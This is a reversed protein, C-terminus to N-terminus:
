LQFDLFSNSLTFKQLSSRFVLSNRCKNEANIKSRRACTDLGISFSQGGSISPMMLTQPMTGAHNVSASAPRSGIFPPMLM